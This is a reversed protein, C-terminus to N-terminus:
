SHPVTSRFRFSVLIVVLIDKKNILQEHYHFTCGFFEVVIPEDFKCHLFTPFQELNATNKITSAGILGDVTFKTGLYRNRLGSSDFAWRM